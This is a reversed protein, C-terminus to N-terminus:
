PAMGGPWAIIKSTVTAAISGAAAPAPAPLLLPKPSVERLPSVRAKQVMRGHSIAEGDRRHHVPGITGAADQMAGQRPMGQEIGLHHRGLRHQMAVALSQQAEVRDFM